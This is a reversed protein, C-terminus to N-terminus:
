KRAMLQVLAIEPPAPPPQLEVEVTARARVRQVGSVVIREGVALGEKGEKGKAAPRIVRLDNVAQGLTVSRYEVVDREEKVGDTEEQVKKVVWVYKREQDSQIAEDPILITEYPQGIPLRIRVFMGAKLVGKSNAFVGRMRVTGTTGTVRNDIFNVTGVRNFEDENVLRMMVPYQSSELWTAQGPLPSTVSELYTREDVDFYAYIPGETVLTTLVTNDAVILNNPDVNRRSIRGSIPATVRTYDLYLRAKDRAAESAGVAAISKDIAAISADYEERSMSGNAFMKRARDANKEMLARDAIALKLNAEAQNLDAKYPRPDIQFLLEGEKVLDGEKFPIETVYGSVRARIDITKIADLRGTFDQYDVVTGKIPNTVFVKPKKSGQSTSSGNTCGGLLSVTLLGAVAAGVIRSKEVHAIGM